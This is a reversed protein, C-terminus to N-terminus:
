EESNIQVATGTVAGATAGFLIGKAMTWGKTNGGWWNAVVGVAGLTIGTAIYDGYSVWKPPSIIKTLDNPEFYGVEYFGEKFLNLTDGFLRGGTNSTARSLSTLPGYGEEILSKGFTVVFEAPVTLPLILVKAARALVPQAFAPTAITLALTMVLLLGISRKM